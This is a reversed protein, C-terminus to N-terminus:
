SLHGNKETIDKAKMDTFFYEGDESIEKIM